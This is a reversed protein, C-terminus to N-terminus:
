PKNTRIWEWLDKFAYGAYDTIPIVVGADIEKDEGFGIKKSLERSTGTFAVFFLNNVGYFPLNHEIIKEKLKEYKQNDNELSAILYVM